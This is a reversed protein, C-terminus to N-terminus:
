PKQFNSAQYKIGFKQEIYAIANKLDENRGLGEFLSLSNKLVNLGEEERKLHCLCCGKNFLFLPHFFSNRQRECYDIGEECVDLCENLKGSIGLKNSLNFLVHIYTKLKEDEDVYGSELNSKLKKFVETSEDISSIHFLATGIHNILHIEDFFLVYADIKDISFNPRTIKIGELAYDYMAQYDRRNYALTAKVRLLYQPNLRDRHFDDDQALVSTLHDADNVSDIDVERLLYRLKTKIEEFKMDMPTLSYIKYYKNPNEGLRQMIKVFRNWHPCVVGREIRALEDATCIGEGAENIHGEEGACLQQITWGKEKRLQRILKGLEFLPEKKKTKKDAM